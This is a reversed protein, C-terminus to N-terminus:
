NKKGILILNSKFFLFNVHKIEYKPIDIKRMIKILDKESLLNLNEEKSLMKLGIINLIFRHFKKPLWHILPIRSHFEFPHFRNPTIIIFYKRSMLSINECMKIQNDLNGM